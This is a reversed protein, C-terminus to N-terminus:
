GSGSVQARKQEWFSKIQSGLRRAAPLVAGQLKEQANLSTYKVTGSLSPAVATGTDMDVARVTYTSTILEQTRGYYELPMSGMKQIEALILIHGMDRPVVQQVSYWDIADEGYQIRQRLVPIQSVSAVNLGSGFFANELNAKMNPVMVQEGWVAM